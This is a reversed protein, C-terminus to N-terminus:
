RFAQFLDHVLIMCRCLQVLQFIVIILKTRVISAGVKAAANRGNYDALFVAGFGGKGLIEESITVQDAPIEIQDLNRRRRRRRASAISEAQLLWLFWSTLLM